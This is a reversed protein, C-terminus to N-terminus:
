EWEQEIERRAGADLADDDAHLAADREREMMALVEDELDRTERRRQKDQYEWREKKCRLVLATAASLSRDASKVCLKYAHLAHELAEDYDHLALHAQALYYHAKMSDSSLKLCENCDAIVSEWLNMKLRAM